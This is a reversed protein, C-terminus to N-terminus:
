LIGAALGGGGVCTVLAAPVRPDMHEELLQEKIEDVLTAHGEWTSEQEFPHVFFADPDQELLKMAEKNAADWNTGVIHM